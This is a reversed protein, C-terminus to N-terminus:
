DNCQIVLVKGKDIKLICYDDVIENSTTYNDFVNLTKNIIPYKVGSLSLLVEEFVLLSLYKYGDKKINYTGSNLCYIKNKDDYCVFNLGSLYLMKINLLDHDKRGGLIGYIEYLYYKDKLYNLAHEFDTDDKIPNLKIVKKSMKEILLYDDQSVSDFDGISVDIKINNKALYLAGKDVGIVDNKYRKKIIPRYACVVSCKKM